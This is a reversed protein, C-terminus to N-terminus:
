NIGRRQNDMLQFLEPKDAQVKYMATEYDLKDEKMVKKVELDFLKMHDKDETTNSSGEEGLKIVPQLTGIIEKTSEPNSMYQKKFIEEMAPTLKGESLAVSYISNWDAEKLKLEVTKMSETLKIIQQDATSKGNIAENLKINLNDKDAKLTEIEKTLNTKDTNLTEITATLESLKISDEVLKNVAVKIEDETAKETLKLAKLLEKNM